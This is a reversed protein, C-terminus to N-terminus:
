KPVPSLQTVAGIDKIKKAPNGAIVCYGEPFSKTVVSGAGVTTHPGLTVGPLIVSNMGIWCKPGLVIDRGEVHLDPDNIDHNTTILGVNPAIYTGKGIVIKAGIAQYYNGIGQFNNLDDIDFYINKPNGVRIGPSVPFPVTINIGMFIRSTADTVIWHWGAGMLGGWKGRFYKGKLYKQEYLFVAFLNGLVFFYTKAIIKCFKRFM